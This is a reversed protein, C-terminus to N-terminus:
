PREGAAAVMGEFLKRQAIIAKIRDDVKTGAELLIWGRYDM